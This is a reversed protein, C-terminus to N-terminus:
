DSPFESMLHKFDEDELNGALDDFSANCFELSDSFVINKKIIFSM